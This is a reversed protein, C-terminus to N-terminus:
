VTPPARTHFVPHPLSPLGFDIPGSDVVAFLVGGPGISMPDPVILSSALDISACIACAEHALRDQSQQAPDDPRAPSPAALEVRQAQSNGPGQLAGEPPHIHGFSLGIQLWLAFLAAWASGRQLSRRQLM